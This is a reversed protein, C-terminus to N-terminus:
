CPLTTIAASLPEIGDVLRDLGDTAAAPRALRGRTVSLVGLFMALLQDNGWGGVVIVVVGVFAIIIRSILADPKEGLLFVSALYLWM